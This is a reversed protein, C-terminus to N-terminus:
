FGCESTTRLGGCVQTVCAVCLCVCVGFLVYTNKSLKKLFYVNFVNLLENILVSTNEKMHM